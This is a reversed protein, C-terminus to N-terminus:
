FLLLLSIFIILFKGDKFKQTQESVQQETLLIQQYLSDLSM